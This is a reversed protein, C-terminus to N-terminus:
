KGEWRLLYEVGEAYSALHGKKRYTEIKAMESGLLALRTQEVGEPCGGWPSQSAPVPLVQCDSRMAHIFTLFARPMHYASAVLLMRRWGQSAAQLALAEAQGRTNTSGIECTIRSPAVGMGMLEARARRAGIVGPGNVGGTLVVLPAGGSGMLEAAVRLRPECDEGCLVVIADAAM